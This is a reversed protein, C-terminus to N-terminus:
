RGRLLYRKIDSIDSRLLAYQEQAIVGYISDVTHQIRVEDRLTRVDEKVQQLCTRLSDLNLPQAAVSPPPPQITDGGAFIATASPAMAAIAVIAAWRFFPESVKSWEFREYWRKREM